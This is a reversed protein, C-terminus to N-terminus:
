ALRPFVMGLEPTTDTEAEAQTAVLGPTRMEGPVALLDEDGLPRRTRGHGGTHYARGGPVNSGLPSVAEM